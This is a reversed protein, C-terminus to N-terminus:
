QKAVATQPLKVRSVLWISLLAIAYLVTIVPIVAAYRHAQDSAHSVVFSALQNGSLGAIAWASLTLGHTTSVAKIGFHQDLLVPLTSFGGGYGANILFLMALVAWLLANGISNTLLQLVCVAISMVFIIKYSSERRKLHDSLTAFGVRGLANFLADVALITGIIGAIAISFESSSMSAYRPIQHLLDKLIDKEQSILALGCTINLYFAIWIGWFLPKKLLAGRRYEASPKEYVYGSPRKILLFGGLMMVTYVAALVYFMNVLGVGEILFEMVPSAIAKALGFGAVAIGTAMGKNDSFWLMLNKVPTLYGIGLGIGMIVGYFIFVGPTFHLAISAGTGAFGVVFCVTAILASKKIDKEVMPGLFAASMGLFFIALSFGWEITGSSVHLEDAILQKFVSWCYVTGISIHLLLAPAVARTWRNDPLLTM